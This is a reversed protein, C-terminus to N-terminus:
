DSQPCQGCCPHSHQCPHSLLLHASSTHQISLSFCSAAAALAASFAAATAVGAAAPAVGVASFAATGAGSFAAFDSFFHTSVNNNKNSPKHLLELLSALLVLIGNWSL